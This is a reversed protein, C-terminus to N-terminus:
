PWIWLPAMFVVGASDLTRGAEAAGLDGMSGVNSDALSFFGLNGV